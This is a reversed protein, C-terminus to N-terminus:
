VSGHREFWERSYQSVLQSKDAVPRRFISGGIESGRVREVMSRRKHVVHGFRDRGGADNPSPFCGGASLVRYVPFSVKVHTRIAGANQPNENDYATFSKRDIRKNADTWEFTV